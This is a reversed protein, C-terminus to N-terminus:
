AVRADGMRERPALLLIRGRQADVVGDWPRAVITRALPDLVALGSDATTHATGCWFAVLVRDSRSWDVPTVTCEPYAVRAVRPIWSIRRHVLDVFRVRGWSADAFAVSRRDPSFLRGNTADHLRLEGGGRWVLRTPAYGWKADWYNGVRFSHAHQAGGCGSLALAALALPTRSTRTTGSASRARRRATAASRW